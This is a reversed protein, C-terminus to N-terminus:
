RLRPGSCEVAVCRQAFRERLKIGFHAEIRSGAPGNPSENSTLITPLSNDLRHKLIGRVLSRGSETWEEGDDDLFEDIVLLEAARCRELFNKAAAAWNRSDADNDRAVQQANADLIERESAWVVDVVVRKFIAGRVARAAAVSKGTRSPGWIWLTRRLEGILPTEFADLWGIVVDAVTPPDAHRLDRHRYPQYAGSAFSWLDGPILGGWRQELIKKAGGPRQLAGWLADSNRRGQGAVCAECRPEPHDWVLLDRGSRRRQHSVPEVMNSCPSGPETISAGHRYTCRRPYPRGCHRCTTRGYAAADFVHDCVPCRSVGLVIGHEARM